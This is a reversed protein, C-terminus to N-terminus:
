GLVGRQMSFPRNWARLWRDVVSLGFLPLAMATRSTDFGDDLGHPIDPTPHADHSSGLGQKLDILDVSKVTLATGPRAWIFSPMDSLEAFISGFRNGVFPGPVPDARFKELFV